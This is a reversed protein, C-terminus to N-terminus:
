PRWVHVAWNDVGHETDQAPAGVALAGESVVGFRLPAGAASFDPCREGAGCAPGDIQTFADVTLWPWRSLPWWATMNCQQRQGAAVYRRGDQEVLPAVWVIVQPIDFGRVLRCDAQVVLRRVEGQAAPDYATATHLHLGRLRSPGATMHGVFRLWAGPHGGDLAQGSELTPGGVAPEALADVTWRAPDFDADAIAVGPQSSVGLDADASATGADSSVTVRYVAGDDALTPQELRFELTHTGVIPTCDASGPAQRCWSVATPASGYVYATFHVPVGTVTIVHAPTVSVSIFPPVPLIPGQSGQPFGGGSGALVVLGATAVAISSLWRRQMVAHERPAAARAKRWRL